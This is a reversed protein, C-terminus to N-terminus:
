EIYAVTMHSGILCFTFFLFYITKTSEIKFNFIFKTFSDDDSLCNTKIIKINISRYILSHTTPHNLAAAAYIFYYLQLPTFTHM